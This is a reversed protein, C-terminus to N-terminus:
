FDVALGFFQGNTAQIVDDHSMQAVLSSVTLGDKGKSYLDFDSNIPNLNKDKRAGGNANGELVTYAYPNGWPDTRGDANADALSDPLEGNNALRFKDIDLCIAGLDAIMTGVRARDVYSTYGPVAIVMLLSILAVALMLELLTFGANQQSFLKSM